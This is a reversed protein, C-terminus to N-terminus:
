YVEDHTGVTELLIAENGKYEVFSFVIRMDYGVSCAFSKELQGSLKHTKLKPHFADQSLLQLTTSLEEAFQTDRKAYKRAAKM